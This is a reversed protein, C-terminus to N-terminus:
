DVKPNWILSIEQSTSSSQQWSIVVKGNSALDSVSHLQPVIFFQVSETLVVISSLLM